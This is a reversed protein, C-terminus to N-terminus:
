FPQLHPLPLCVQALPSLAFLAPSLAQSFILIILFSSDGNKGEWLTRGWFSQLQRCTGSSKTGKAMAIAQLLSTPSSVPQGRPM